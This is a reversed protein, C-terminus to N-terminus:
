RIKLLFVITYISLLETKFNLEIPMAIVLKQLLFAVTLSLLYNAYRRTAFVCVSCTAYYNPKASYFLYFLALLCVYLKPVLQMLGRWCLIGCTYITGKENDCLWSLLSRRFMWIVQRMEVYKPCLTRMIVLIVVAVVKLPAVLTCIQNDYRGWSNFYKYM